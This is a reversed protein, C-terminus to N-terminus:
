QGYQVYYSVGVKEKLDEFFTQSLEAAKQEELIERAEARQGASDTATLNEGYNQILADIESEAVEVQAEILKRSLVQLEVSREFEAYSMGRQKLIINLEEQGGVGQTITDIEAQVEDNSSTVGKETAEQHILQEYVLDSLASGKYRQVMTQAINWTFIPKKGVKAAVILGNFRSGVFYFIIVLIVLIAMTGPQLRLPPLTIKVEKGKVNKGAPKESATKKSSVSPKQTEKM